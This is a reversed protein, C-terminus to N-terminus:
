LWRKRRFFLLMGVVLGIMLGWVALYGYRWGLEPMNWPSSRDFNMGYVGVIFTLPMFLVSIVTLTRMVDNLRLSLGSLYLDSLSAVMDRYSEVIDLMQVGHDYLDRLYVRTETTFRREGDRLLHAFIDRQPWFARRLQLLSHRLRHIRDISGSQGPRLAVADELVELRDGFEELVPFAADVIVDMMTYVLYDTGQNRITGQAQEIRTRVPALVDPGSEQLTVVFRDNFFLAVQTLDIRDGDFRPSQFIAFGHAEYEEIKPRQGIHVADEVALPHLKFTEGIRKILALDSLGIVQVWTVSDSDRCAALHDWDPRERQELHQNKYDLLLAQTAGADGAEPPLTGPLRGPIHYDKYFARRRLRPGNNDPEPSRIPRM